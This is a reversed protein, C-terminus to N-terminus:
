MQIVKKRTAKRTATTLSTKKPSTSTKGAMMLEVNSVERVAKSIESPRVPTSDSQSPMMFIPSFPPTTLAMDRTSLGTNRRRKGPMGSPCGTMPWMKMFMLALMSPRSLAAVGRPRFAMSPRCVSLLSFSRALLAMIMNRTSLVEPRVMMGTLMM